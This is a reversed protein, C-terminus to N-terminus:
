VLRMVSKHLYPVTADYWLVDTYEGDQTRIFMHGHRYDEPDVDIHDLVSMVSDHNELLLYDDPVDAITNIDQEM